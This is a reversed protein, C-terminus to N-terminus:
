PPQCDLAESPLREPSQDHSTCRVWLSLWPWGSVKAVRVTLVPVNPVAPVATVPATGPRLLALAGQSIRPVPVCYWM